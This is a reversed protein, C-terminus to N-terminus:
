VVWLFFLWRRRGRCWWYYYGRGLFNFRTPRWPLQKATAENIIQLSPFCYYSVFLPVYQTFATKLV